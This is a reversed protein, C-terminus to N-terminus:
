SLRFVFPSGMHILVGMYVYYLLLIGVLFGFLIRFGSVTNKKFDAGMRILVLSDSVTLIAAAIGLLSIGKYIDTLAGAFLIMISAAYIMM